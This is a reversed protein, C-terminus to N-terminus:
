KTMLARIKRAAAARHSLTQKTKSDLVGFSDSHGDPIFVPDYGFGNIGFPKRAIIGECTGRAEHLILGGPTAVVIVCVFRATRKEDPVGELNKLLKDINDPDSANKGAYRASHVGPDGELFDVCLGSDDALVVKNLARSYEVSKIKANSEFTTGDEVPEDVSPFDKLGKVRIGSGELLEHFEKIKGINGSGIVLENAKM